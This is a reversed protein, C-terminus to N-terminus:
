NSISFGPICLGMFWWRRNLWVLLRCLWGFQLFRNFIERHFHTCSVQPIWLWSGDLWFGRWHPNKLKDRIHIYLFLHTYLPLFLFVFTTITFVFVIIVIVIIVIYLNDVRSKFVRPQQNPPYCKLLWNSNNPPFWWM